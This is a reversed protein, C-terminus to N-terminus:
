TAPGEFTTPPTVMSYANPQGLLQAVRVLASRISRHDEAAAVLLARELAPLQRWRDPRKAAHERRERDQESRAEVDIAQQALHARVREERAKAAALEAEARQVGTV